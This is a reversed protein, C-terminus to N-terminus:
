SFKNFGGGLLFEQTHWQFYVAHNLNVACALFLKTEEVMVDV